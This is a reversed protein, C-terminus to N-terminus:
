DAKEVRVADDGKGMAFDLKDDEAISAAVLEKSLPSNVGGPIGVLNSRTLACIRNVCHSLAEVM